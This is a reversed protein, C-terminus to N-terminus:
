CFNLQSFLYLLVSCFYPFISLHTGSFLSVKNPVNFDALTWLTIDTPWFPNHPIKMLNYVHCLEWILFLLQGIYRNVDLDPDDNCFVLKGHKSFSQTLYRKVVLFYNIIYDIFVHLGKPTDPIQGLMM